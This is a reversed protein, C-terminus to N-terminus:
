GRQNRCASRRGNIRDGRKGATEIPVDLSVVPFWPSLGPAANIHNFNYGPAVSLTPNPRGGATQIGARAVDWQARAVELDPHYYFAALALMEFDWSRPPWDAPDRQLNTELFSRLGPDNLTRNELASATQEPSVPKAVYHACGCVLGGALLAAGFTRISNLM